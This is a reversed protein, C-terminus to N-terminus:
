ISTSENEIKKRLQHNEYILRDIALKYDHSLKQLRKIRNILERYREEKKIERAVEKNVLKNEAIKQRLKSLEHELEQIYSTLEGVEQRSRKLLYEVPIKMPEEIM